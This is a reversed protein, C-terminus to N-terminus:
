MFKSDAGSCQYHFNESSKATLPPTYLVSKTFSQHSVDAMTKTKEKTYNNYYVCLLNFRLRHRFSTLNLLNQYKNLEFPHLNHFPIPSM